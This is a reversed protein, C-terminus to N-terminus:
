ARRAAGFREERQRTLHPVQGLARQVIMLQARHHMEHEKVGLLMELRSKSAPDSGPPMTMREALFDDTMSALWTAFSEGRTELLAILEDRTRPKQEEAHVKGVFGPYDFGEFSTRREGHLAKSVEDVYAIHALMQRATRTGPVAAVDLKDEPIERAIQLTNGRVTRFSRALEAGGYTSM